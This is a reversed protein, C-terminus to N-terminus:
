HSIAYSFGLSFLERLQLKHWYSDSNASTDYRLDLNLNATLFRNITFKFQNQWDGQFYDYNTFAFIRSSWSVNYCINWTWKIEASSGYSNFTKKGEEIGFSKENIKKDICTKLNYSIPSLTVGLTFKENKTKMNYTMGAGINLEGPSFFSATRTQTAKKYGNFIPTKLLGTITYYWNHAAKYGFTTNIQFRNETLSYKRYPDDPTNQLATRWQFFNEFLLKPHFKTNLNSKYTFNAIMNLSNNGGQYWNPSVYAQSFQIDTTFKNLWHQKKIDAQPIDVPAISLSPVETFTYTANEPDATLVYVKPPEPLTYLNLHVDAPHNLAHTQRILDALVRTDEESQLWELGTIIHKNGIHLVIPHIDYSFPMYIPPLFLERSLPVVPRIPEVLYSDLDFPVASLSDAALADPYTEEIAIDGLLEAITVDPKQASVSLASMAGILFISFNRAFM